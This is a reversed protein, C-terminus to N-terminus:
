YFEIFNKSTCLMSINFEMIPDLIVACQVEAHCRNM